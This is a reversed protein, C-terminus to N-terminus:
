KSEETEATDVAVRSREVKPLYVYQTGKYSNYQGFLLRLLAGATPTFTVTTRTITDADSDVDSVFPQNPNLQKTLAWNTTLGVSVSYPRGPVLDVKTTSGPNVAVLRMNGSQWVSAQISPESSDCNENGDWLGDRDDDCFIGLSLVSKKALLIDVDNHIDATIDRTFVITQGNQGVGNDGKSGTIVYEQSPFSVTYQGTDNVPLYYNDTIGSSQYQGLLTGNQYLSVAGIIDHIEYDGRDEKGNINADDVIRLVIYKQITSEGPQPITGDEAQTDTTNFLLVLCATAISVILGVYAKRNSPFM